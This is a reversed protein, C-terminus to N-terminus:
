KTNAIEQIAESKQMSMESRFKSIVYDIPSVDCSTLMMVSFMVFLISPTKRLRAQVSFAQIATHKHNHIVDNCTNMAM